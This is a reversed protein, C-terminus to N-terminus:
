RRTKFPTFNYENINKLFKTILLAIEKYDGYLIQRKLIFLITKVHNKGGRSAFLPDKRDNCMELTQISRACEVLAAKFIRRIRNREVALPIFKKGCCYKIQIFENNCFFGLHVKSISTKKLSSLNFYSDFFIGKFM